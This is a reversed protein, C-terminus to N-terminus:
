LDRESVDTNANRSHQEVLQDSGGQANLKHNLIM